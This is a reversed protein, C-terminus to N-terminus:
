IKISEHDKHIWESFIHRDEMTIQNDDKGPDRFLDQKKHAQTLTKKVYKMM